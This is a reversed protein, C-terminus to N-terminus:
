NTNRTALVGDLKAMADAKARKTWRAYINLTVTPSAHGMIASVSVIDVDHAIAQTAFTHRLDHFVPTMNEMGKIGTMGIFDSWKHSLYDASMFRDADEPRAMVYCGTLEDGWLEVFLTRRASLLCVIDENMPIDRYKRSKPYPKLKAGGNANTVVNRVHIYGGPAMTGDLGGDIDDWALGCVEGERMGTLLALSAADAVCRRMSGTTQRLNGLASNLREIANLDLPNKQRPETKPQEIPTCPNSKIYGMRVGWSCAAKLEIFSKKIATAGAREDRKADLWRQVDDAKLDSIAMDLTPHDIHNRAKRYDKRTNDAVNTKTAWYSDCFVLVSQTKQAKAQEELNAKRILEDRWAKLIKKAEGSGKGKPDVRKGRGREEATPPECSCGTLKTLQKREGDTTASVIAQWQWSGHVNRKKIRGESITTTM